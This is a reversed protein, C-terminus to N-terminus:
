PLSSPGSLVLRRSQGAGLQLPVGRALEEGTYLTRTGETLDFLEYTVGPEVTYWEPFQNIRPWDLPQNLITRHRPTDVRLVGKWAQDARASIKLLTGETVAGFVLDDRWPQLLTGQTKWLGYMISTRAFNGDAYWAEIMGDPRQLGWMVEIQGDIWEAVHPLRERQYLNLAGEIADAYGDQGGVAPVPGGGAWDEWKYSTYKPLSALAQLVADRYAEDGDILYVTYYGNLTYGWTDAIAQSHTAEVPNIYQYFLGDENRGVELIRDLMEHIPQRYEDQKGPRAFHVTAYLECLGSVIECGHDLLRLKHSFRTPLKSTLLYYDGLRLAEDLYKEDGTMWFIRSLTQLQEGHVETIPTPIPGFGTPTDAHTWLDDLMGMMRTYWPTRGLLETLPLCGDKIYESAGYKIRNYEPNPNEFAGKAFDYTDPLRDQRSTLKKEAYLIDMMIGNYLGRDLLACTLVMFAYNDAANNAPRWLTRRTDDLLSEPFLGTEPDLHALWGHVYRMSREFAEHARQGAATAGTFGPDDESVPAGRYCSGAGTVLAVAVLISTRVSAPERLRIALEKRHRAVDRSRVRYRKPIGGWRHCYGGHRRSPALFFEERTSV